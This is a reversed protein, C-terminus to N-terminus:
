AGLGAPDLDPLVDRIERRSSIGLKTFVKRLHWEVTRRSIFLQTSIEPNTHGAGALRAIQAEQATLEDVTQILRKRVTEGTAALEHRAREAFGEAGAATLMEHATRLQQRADVRRGQRRLWEGYVLHARALEARVRTRGLHDIAELYLLEASEGDSVLAGSRAAMGLAWDTGTTRAAESLLAVADAGREPQGSRAAAEILEVQCWTAQGLEALYESGQEAAVLAEHYSGRGNQLVATAWAAATLWRGEGRAVMRGTADSILRRTDLDRGAWAAMLLSGYPQVPAGTARIVAEEEHALQAATTPDGALLRIAVGETLAHPLVTLAGAKRAREILRSSLTDWSQDDWLDRALRCALLRWGLGEETFGDGRRFAGLAQALMPAGVAYGQTTLVALGDLLLDGARPPQPGHLVARVAAAVRPMGGDGALRGATLAALFADRYAERALPPQLVQLHTATELLHSLADRGRGSDTALQVRLLEARGHGLQDLPGAQAMSLLRLAAEPAGAQYKTEAATLARRARRAPDPTLEAARQGFAAAAALGGRDRARAATCELETAIDEDIESAGLARHWARRDPDVGADTAEALALHVRQRERQSAAQYIAARGLPHRFRVLGGFEILKAAIAPAAADAAIGLRGAAKWLLVPDGIPEAAAVLLLQRTPPPLPALQRRFDDRIRAPLVVARPLGFGGALKGPAVGLALELLARPNGGTEAVIRDRVREDLPGVLVAELLARADGEALGRVVLEALGALAQGADPTRVGLVVAVPVAAVHRAVFALAQASALDLWQVDDAVCILPCERAVESLLSLVALGVTFRDPVTGSRLSFATGLADRQPGPLCPMRDLFPACLQHLGAFALGIESEVGAAQAIRCGAARRVLYNLLATKGAGAEGRVVLVRSQGAQVSALLRDLTECEGHRGQLGGEPEGSPSLGARILNRHADRHIFRM